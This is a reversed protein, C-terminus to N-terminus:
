ADDAAAAAPADAQALYRSLQLQALAAQNVPNQASSQWEKWLLESVQSLKLSPHEARLRSLNAEQCCVLNCVRLVSLMLYCLIIYCLMIYVYSHVICLVEHIGFRKRLPETHIHFYNLRFYNFLTILQFNRRCNFMRSMIIFNSHLFKSNLDYSFISHIPAHGYYNQLLTYVSKM